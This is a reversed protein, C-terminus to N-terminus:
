EEPTHLRPAAPLLALCARELLGGVVSHRGAVSQEDAGDVDSQDRREGEAHVLRVDEGGATVAEAVKLAPETEGDHRACPENWIGSPRGSACRSVSTTSTRAAHSRSRSRRM